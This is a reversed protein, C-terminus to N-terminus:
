KRSRYKKTLESVCQKCYSNYYIPNKRYYPVKKARKGFQEISKVKQCKPCLKEIIVEQQYLKHFNTGYRYKSKCENCINSIKSKTRKDERFDSVNKLESCKECVKM